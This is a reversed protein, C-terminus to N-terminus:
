KETGMAATTADSQPLKGVADMFAECEARTNFYTVCGREDKACGTGEHKDGLWHLGIPAPMVGASASRAIMDTADGIHDASAPRTSLVISAALDRLGQKGGQYHLTGIGNHAWQPFGKPGDERLGEWDYRIWKALLKAGADVDMEDTIEAM